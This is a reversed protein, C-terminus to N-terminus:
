ISEKVITPEKQGVDLQEKHRNKRFYVCWMNDLQDNKLTDSLKHTGGGVHDDQYIWSENIKM